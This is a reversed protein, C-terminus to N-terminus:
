PMETGDRMAAEHERLAQYFLGDGIVDRWGIILRAVMGACRDREAQVPDPAAELALLLVGAWRAMERTALRLGDRSADPVEALALAAAIDARCTKITTQTMTM